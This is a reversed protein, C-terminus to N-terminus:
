RLQPANEADELCKRLEGVVTARLFHSLRAEDGPASVPSSMFRCLWDAEAVNMRLVIEESERRLFADV